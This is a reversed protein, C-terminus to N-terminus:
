FGSFDFPRRYSNLSIWAVRSQANLHKIQPGDRYCDDASWRAGVHQMAGVGPATAALRVM